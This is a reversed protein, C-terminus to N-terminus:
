NIYKGRYKLRKPQSVSSNQNLSSTDPVIEEYVKGRYKKMIKKTPIEEEIDNIPQSSTEKLSNDAEKSKDPEVELNRKWIELELETEVILYIENNQLSKKCYEVAKEQEKLSFSLNEKAFILNYFKITKGDPTFAGKKDLFAKTFKLINNM